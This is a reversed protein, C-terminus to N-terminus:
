VINRSYNGVIDSKKKKIAIRHSHHPTTAFGTGKLFLHMENSKFALHSTASM